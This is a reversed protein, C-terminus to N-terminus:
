REQARARGLAFARLNVARFKEPVSEAIAREMTEAGFPLCGAGLAAGLLVVNCARLSGAQAALGMGDVPVVRGAYKKVAARMAAEDYDALGLSVTVPHVVQTNLIVAGGPRLRGLNRATECVEFGILLDARGMPVAPGFGDGIRVNSVVCGGRQSMGITEGTRVMRGALIAAQALLRSALVQGQGGVGAILIETDTTEHLTDTM